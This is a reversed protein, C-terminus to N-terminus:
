GNSASVQQELATIPPQLAQVAAQDNAITNQLGNVTPQALPGLLHLFSILFTDVQIQVNLNRVQDQDADLQSLVNIRQQLGQLGAQDASIHGQLSAITQQLQPTSPASSKLLALVTQNVRLDITAIVAQVTDQNLQVHVQTHNLATPVCRGELPELSPRFSSAPRVHNPKAFLKSLRMPNVKKLLPSGNWKKHSM